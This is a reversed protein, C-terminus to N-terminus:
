KSEVFDQLYFWYYFGDSLDPNALHAFTFTSKEAYAAAIRFSYSLEGDRLTPGVASSAILGKPGAIELKGMRHPSAPAGGRDKEKVTVHFDLFDEVDKQLVREVEVNLVYLHDGTKKPTLRTHITEARVDGATLWACLCVAFAFAIKM